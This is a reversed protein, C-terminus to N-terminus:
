VATTASDGTVPFLFFFRLDHKDNSNPVTATVEIEYAGDSTDSAVMWYDETGNSTAPQTTLAGYKQSGDANTGVTGFFTSSSITIDNAGNFSLEFETKNHNAVEMYIIFKTGSKITFTVSSSKEGDPVFSDEENTDGNTDAAPIVLVNYEIDNISYAGNVMGIHDESSVTIGNYTNVRLSFDVTNGGNLFVTDSWGDGKASFEIDLVFDEPITDFVGTGVDWLFIEMLYTKGRELTRLELENQITTSDIGTDKTVIDTTYFEETVDATVPNDGVTVESCVFQAKDLINYWEKNGSVHTVKVTLKTEAPGGTVKLFVENVGSMSQKEALLEYVPSESSSTTQRFEIFADMFAPSQWEDTCEPDSYLNLSCGESQVQNGLSATSSELLCYSTQPLTLLAFLLLAIVVAHKSMSVGM